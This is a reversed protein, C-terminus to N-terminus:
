AARLSSTLIKPVPPPSASLGFSCTRPTASSPSASATRKSASGASPLTCASNAPLGSNNLRDPTVSPSPCRRSERRINQNAQFRACGFERIRSGHNVGSSRRSGDPDSWRPPPLGRKRARAPTAAEEPKSPAGLDVSLVLGAQFQPTFGTLPTGGVLLGVSLRPLPRATLSGAVDFSIPLQVESLPGEFAARLRAEARIELANTPTLGVFAAGEVLSSAGEGFGATVGAEGGGSVIRSHGTVAGFTRLASTSAPQLSASFTGPLAFSAGLTVRPARPRKGPLVLARVGLTAAGLAPEATQGVEGGLLFPVAVELAIRHRVAFGGSLTSLLFVRDAHDDPLVLATASISVATTPLGLASGSPEVGSAGGGSPHHALAASPVLLVLLAIWRM